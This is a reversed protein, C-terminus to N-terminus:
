REREGCPKLLDPNTDLVPVLFQWPDHDRTNRIGSGPHAWRRSLGGENSSCQKEYVDPIEPQVAGRKRGKRRRGLRLGEVAM